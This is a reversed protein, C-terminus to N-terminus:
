RSKLARKAEPFKRSLTSKTLGGYGRFYDEIVEILRAESAFSPHKQVGPLNGGICDLLAAIINQYTSEAREGPVGLKDVKANLKDVIDKFSNREADLAEKEERLKKYESKANELRVKLKEHEAKLAWYADTSIAPHTSQEIDDFLFAPKENPFAKKLWERLARGFVHRREHAVYEGAPVPKGDERVCQLEGDEIAEAIARGRAELCPVGPHTWISRGLGTPSLQRAEQLIQSMQDDPVGCWLAAAHPISYIAYYAKIAACDDIEWPKNM